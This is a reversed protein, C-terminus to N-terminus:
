KLINDCMLQLTNIFRAAHFGDCVAHHVQVSVPLLVRDGEQQFKAMTFVPSFYDDNGTINLNFGDFSVWPLSSINLHNEPLNGQPFVRTDHQYEATVANYGAMFESLDPFYRC